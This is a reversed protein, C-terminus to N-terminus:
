QEIIEFEETYEPNKQLEEAIRYVLLDSRGDIDKIKGIPKMTDKQVIGGYGAEEWDELGAERLAKDIICPFDHYAKRVSERDLQEPFHSRNLTIKM